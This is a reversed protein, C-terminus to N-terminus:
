SRAWTSSAFVTDLPSSLVPLYITDTVRLDELRILLPLPDM